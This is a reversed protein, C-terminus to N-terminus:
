KGRFYEHLLDSAYRLDEINLYQHVGFHFGNDGVYESEPFDGLKHGLFAFARHQTPMSGFNRKCKVGNKEMFSVLERCNYEPKKLTVSFGHGCCVEYHEEKNFHAFKELDRVSERLFAVNARRKEFTRWFEKIQPLGVAAELDNMKGNFGLRQHDFYLEGDKRGHSIISRLIKATNEDNTSIMGGEGCCVLHATYYSFTSMNGFHGITTGCYKAGHAECSDEIIKLGYKRAISVITNMDCPKGMTHVAMIAQTRPTINEEILGSNINLTEKEIDVFRPTFGALIIAEGVAAFANAPAIIEDGRKAGFEYLALCAALDASTGSSAAVNYKYDFLRGWEEEFSKVLPGSSAWGSRVVRELYALNREDLSLDGFEVRMKGM